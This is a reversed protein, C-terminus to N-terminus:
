HSAPAGPCDSYSDIPDVPLLGCRECTQAGTFRGYQWTHPSTQQARTADVEQCWQCSTEGDVTRNGCQCKAISASM